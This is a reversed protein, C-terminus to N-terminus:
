AKWGCFQCWNGNVPHKRDYQGPCDKPETKEACREWWNGPHPFKASFLYEEPTFEPYYERILITGDHNDPIAAAECLKTIRAAEMKKEAMFTEQHIVEWKDFDRNKKADEVEYEVNPIRGFPTNGICGGPWILTADSWTKGAERLEPVQYCHRHHLFTAEIWAKTRPHDIPLPTWLSRMKKDFYERYGEWSKIWSPWDVNAVARYNNMEPDRIVASAGKGPSNGYATYVSQLYYTPFGPPDGACGSGMYSCINYSPPKRYLPLKRLKGLDITEYSIEM